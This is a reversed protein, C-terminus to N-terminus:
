TSHKRNRKENRIRYYIINNSQEVYPCCDFSHVFEGMIGWKSLILPKKINIGEGEIIKIVIGSHIVGDYAIYIAVDGEIVQDGTVEEYCDEELIKNVEIDELNTRRSGFTLGHCNYIGSEKNVQKTYKDRMFREFAKLFGKVYSQPIKDWNQRNKLDSGLRTQVVIEKIDLKGRELIM